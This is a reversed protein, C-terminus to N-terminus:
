QSPDCYYFYIDFYVGLNNQYSECVEDLFNALNDFNDNLIFKNRKGVNLSTTNTNTNTNTNINTSKYNFNYKNTFKERILKKVNFINIEVGYFSKQYIILKNYFEIQPNNNKLNNLGICYNKYVDLIIKPMFYQNSIEFYNWNEGSELQSKNSYKLISGAAYRLINESCSLYNKDNQKDSLNIKTQNLPILDFQKLEDLINQM